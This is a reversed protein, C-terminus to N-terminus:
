SADHGGEDSLRARLRRLARYIIVGVNTPQLGMIEGIEPHTLGAGFKLAIIEREVASLESVAHWLDIREEVGLAPAGERHAAVEVAAESADVPSAALDHAHRALAHHAIGYLWAGFAGREARYSALSRLAGLFTESVLDEALAQSHTHIWFYRYLQPAHAAYLKGLAERDHAAEAALGGSWEQAM